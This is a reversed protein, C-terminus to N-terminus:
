KNIHWNGRLNKGFKVAYANGTCSVNMTDPDLESSAKMAIVQSTRLNFNVSGPTVTKLTGLNYSLRSNECTIQQPQRTGTTFEIGHEIVKIEVVTQPSAPTTSVPKVTSALTTSALATTLLALTIIRKMDKEKLRDAEM